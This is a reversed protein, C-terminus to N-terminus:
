NINVCWSGILALWESTSQSTVGNPVSTHGVIFSQGQSGDISRSVSDPRVIGALRDTTVTNSAACGENRLVSQKSICKLEAARVGTVMFIGSSMWVAGDYNVHASNVFKDFKAKSIHKVFQRYNSLNSDKTDLMWLCSAQILELYNLKSVSKKDVM